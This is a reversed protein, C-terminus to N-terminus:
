EFEQVLGEEDERRAQCEFDEAIGRLVGTTRPWKSRTAKAFAKFRESIRWELEGGRPRFHVGRKNFM